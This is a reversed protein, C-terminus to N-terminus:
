EYLEVRLCLRVLEGGAAAIAARERWSSAVAVAGDAARATTGYRRPRERQCRGGARDRSGGREAAQTTFRHEPKRKETKLVFMNRETGELAEDEGKRKDESLVKDVVTRRRKAVLGV